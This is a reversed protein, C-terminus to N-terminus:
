RMHNSKSCPGNTNNLQSISIENLQFVLPGHPAISAESLKKFSTKLLVFNKIM